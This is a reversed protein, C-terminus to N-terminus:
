YVKNINKWNIELRKEGSLKIPWNLLDIAFTIHRNYINKSSFKMESIYEVLYLTDKFLKNYKDQINESATANNFIHYYGFLNRFSQYSKVFYFFHIFLFTDCHLIIHSDFYEKKLTKIANKIINTKFIKNVIFTCGIYNNTFIMEGINPQYLIEDKRMIQDFDNLRGQIFGFDNIDKNNNYSIEYLEKLNSLLMDDDDLFMTHNAKAELIGRSYSYFCGENKKNKIIIIRKDIKSYKELLELGNDTSCDEVFIIELEKLEQKQISRLLRTLYKEGNYFPIILTIKPKEYKKFSEIKTDNLCSQIFDIDKKFKNKLFEKQNFQKKSNPIIFIIFGNLITLFLFLFYKHKINQNFFRNIIKNELLKYQNRKILDKYSEFFNIYKM